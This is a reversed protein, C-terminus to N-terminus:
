TRTHISWHQNNTHDSIEKETAKAFEEQDSQQMAEALHMTNADALSAAYTLPQFDNFLSDGLMSMTLACLYSVALHMSYEPNISGFKKSSNLVKDLMKISRESCTQLSPPAGRARHSNDGENTSTPPPETAPPEAAPVDKPEDPKPYDPEPPDPIPQDDITQEGENVSTVNSSSDDDDVTQLFWPADLNSPIDTNSYDSDGIAHTPWLHKFTVLPM